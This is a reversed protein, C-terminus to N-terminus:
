KLSSPSKKNKNEVGQNQEKTKQPPDDVRLIKRASNKNKATTQPKYMKNLYHQVM